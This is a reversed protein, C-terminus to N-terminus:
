MVLGTSGSRSRDSIPVHSPAQHCTRPRPRLRLARRERDWPYRLTGRRLGGQRADQQDVVVFIAQAGQVRHELRESLSKDGHARAFLRQPPQQPFLERHYEEVHPHRSEVPQLGGAVDGRSRTRTVDRDDEECSVGLVHLLDEACVGGTRDVVDDLRVVRVHQAALRRDEDLELALAAFAHALCTRARLGFRDGARQLTVQQRISKGLHGRERQGRAVPGALAGRLDTPVPVVRDHQGATVHAERDTVDDPM